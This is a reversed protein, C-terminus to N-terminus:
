ACETYRPDANRPVPRGHTRRPAAGGRGLPFEPFLARKLFPLGLVALLWYGFFSYLMGVAVAQASTATPALLSLLAGDRTGMGGITVPILGVFIAVPLVAATLLFPTSAGVAHLLLHTQVISALWNVGTLGLVAALLAPRERLAAFVRLVRTLKEQLNPRPLSSILVPLLLLGILALAAVASSVRIILVNRIALGGALSLLSLLLVDFGRETLVTGGVELTGIENRLSIAKLLDGAKSPTVASIPSIGLIITLCRLIPVRHGIARLMLSWRVASLVPFSLTLLTAAIWTTAQIGRLAEVTEGLDTRRFLLAFVGLTVALLVLGRLTGRRGSWGSLRRFWGRSRLHADLSPLQNELTVFSRETM